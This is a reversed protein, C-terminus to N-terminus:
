GERTRRWRELAVRAKSRATQNEEGYLARALDGSTLGLAETVSALVQERLKDDVAGPSTPAAPGPARGTRVEGGLERLLEELVRRQDSAAFGKLLVRVRDRAAEPTAPPEERVPTAVTVIRRIPLREEQVPRAEPRPAPAVPAPPPELVPRPAPLKAHHRLVEVEVVRRRGAGAARTDEIPVPAVAAAQRPKEVAVPPGPPPADSGEAGETKPPRIRFIRNRDAKPLRSKALSFFVGGDTRRRTGDRVEVGGSDQVRRTETLLELAVEPGLVGVIEAIQKRPLEETEKLAEAITTVADATAM